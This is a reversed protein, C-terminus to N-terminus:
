NLGSRSALSDELGALEFVPPLCTTGECVWAAVTGSDHPVNKDLASPLGRVGVPIALILADPRYTKALQARWLAISNPEGRLVVVRPPALAEELACLLTTYGGPSRKLSEYFLKLTREASSIYRVEGTLHGLRQLAFAAV